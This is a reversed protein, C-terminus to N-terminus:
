SAGGDPFIPAKGYKPSLEDLYKQFLLDLAEDILEPGTRKNAGAGKMQAVLLDWKRARSEEIQFGKHVRSIKPKRAKAPDLIPPQVTPQSSAASQPPKLASLDNKSPM